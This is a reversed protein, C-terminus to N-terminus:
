LLHEHSIFVWQLGTGLGRVCDKERCVGVRVGLVRNMPIGPKRSPVIGERVEPGDQVVNGSGLSAEGM